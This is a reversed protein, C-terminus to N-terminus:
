SGFIQKLKKPPIHLSTIRAGAFSAGAGVILYNLLLSLPQFQHILDPMFLSLFPECRFSFRIRAYWIVFFSYSFRHPHCGWCVNTYLSDSGNFYKFMTNLRIM